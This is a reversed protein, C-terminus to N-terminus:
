PRGPAYKGPMAQGPSEIPHGSTYDIDIRKPSGGPEKLHIELKNYGSNGNRTYKAIFHSSSYKLDQMLDADSEHSLGKADKEEAEDARLPIEDRLKAAKLDDYIFVFANRVHQTERCLQDGLRRLCEINCDKPDIIILKGFGGGPMLHQEPKGLSWQKYTKYEIKSVAGIAEVKNASTPKAHAMEFHENPSNIKNLMPIAVIIGILVLIVLSWKKMDQSPGTQCTRQPVSSRKIAPENLFDLPDPM